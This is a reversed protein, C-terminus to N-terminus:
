RENRATSIERLAFLAPWSNLIAKRGVEVKVLLEHKM